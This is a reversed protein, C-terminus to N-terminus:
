SSFCRRDLPTPMTVLHFDTFGEKGVLEGDDGNQVDMHLTGIRMAGDSAEALFMGGDDEYAQEVDTQLNNLLHRRTIAEEEVLAIWFASTDRYAPHHSDTVMDYDLIKNGPHDTLRVAAGFYHAWGHGHYEQDPPLFNRPARFALGKQSQPPSRLEGDPSM